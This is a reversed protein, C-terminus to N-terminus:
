PAGGGGEVFSRVRREVVETPGGWPTEIEILPIGVEALARRAASRDWGLAADHDFLVSLVAEAGSRGACRTTYEARAGIAGWSAAPAGGGYAQAIGDLPDDTEPVIQEFSRDGFDHDEGVVLAGASEIARYLGADEASSGSAFVRFGGIGSRNEAGAALLRSMTAQFEGKDMVLAAGIAALSDVGSFRPREGTRLAQFSKLLRRNANCLATAEVIESRSVPRGAWEQILTALEGIRTRNYEATTRNPLHRLDLFSVSPREPLEGLRRLERLVFFLKADPGRDHSLILRDLCDFDGRLLRVLHCTAIPDLAMASLDGFGQSDVGPDARLRVPVMGAAVVLEHPVDFGIIGVVPRGGGAHRAAHGLPDFSAAAMTELEGTFSMPSDTVAPPAVQTGGADILM